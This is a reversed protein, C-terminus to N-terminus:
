KKHLATPNFDRVVTVTMKDADVRIGGRSEIEALQETRIRAIEADAKKPKDAMTKKLVRSELGIKYFANRIFKWNQDTLGYKTRLKNAVGNGEALAESNFVGRYYQALQEASLIKALAQERMRTLKKENKTTLFGDNSSIMNIFASNEKDIARALEVQQEPELPVHRCIEYTERITSPAFDNLFNTAVTQAMTTMTISVAAASLIFRIKKM